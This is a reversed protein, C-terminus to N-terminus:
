PHNKKVLSYLTVIFFIFWVDLINQHEFFIRLSRELIKAVVPCTDRRVTEIGKADYTPTEQGPFEYSYGVYRKKTLLFCPYYVKEFKLTVPNPNIATIASAIENGIEFAEKLNRGKLHVFM